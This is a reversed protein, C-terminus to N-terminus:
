TPDGPGHRAWYCMACSPDLKQAERFSRAGDEPTFAYMFQFGQDVFEQARPSSSAVPRSFPGLGVQYLPIGEDFSAPYDHAELGEVGTASPILALCTALTTRRM